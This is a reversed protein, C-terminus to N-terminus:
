WHNVPHRVKEEPSMSTSTKITELAAAVEEAAKAVSTEIEAGQRFYFALVQVILSCGQDSQWHPYRCDLQQHQEEYRAVPFIRRWCESTCLYPLNAILVHLPKPECFGREGEGDIGGPTIGSVSISTM